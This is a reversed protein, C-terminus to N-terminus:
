DLLPGGTFSHICKERNGLFKYFHTCFLITRKNNVINPWTKRSAGMPLQDPRPDPMGAWSRNKSMDSPTRAIASFPLSTSFLLAICSFLTEHAREPM